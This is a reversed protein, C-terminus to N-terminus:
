VRAASIERSIRHRRKYTARYNYKTISKIVKMITINKWAITMEVVITKIVDPNMQTVWIIALM